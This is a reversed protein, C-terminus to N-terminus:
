FSKIINNFSNIFPKLSNEPDEIKNLQKEALSFQSNFDYGHKKYFRKLRAVLEHNTTSIAYQLVALYYVELVHKEYVSKEMKKPETLEEKTVKEMYEDMIVLSYYKIFRVLNLVLFVM